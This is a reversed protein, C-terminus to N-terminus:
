ADLRGRKFVGSIKLRVVSEFNQYESPIKIHVDLYRHNVSKIEVLVSLNPAEARSSGFGTMSYIMLQRGSVAFQLAELIPRPSGCTRRSHRIRQYTWGGPRHDPRRPASDIFPARDRHDDQRGDFESARM